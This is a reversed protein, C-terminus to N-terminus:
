AGGIEHLVVFIFLMIVVWIAFWLGVVMIGELIGHIISM